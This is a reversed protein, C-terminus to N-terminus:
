RKLERKAPEERDVGHWGEADEMREALLIGLRTAGQKLLDRRLERRKLKEVVTTLPSKSPVFDRLLDPPKIEHVQRITHEDIPARMTFKEGFPGILNLELTWDEM